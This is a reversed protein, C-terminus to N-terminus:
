QGTVFVESLHQRITLLLRAELRRDGVSVYLLYQGAPQYFARWYVMKYEQDRCLRAAAEIPAPRFSSIRLM